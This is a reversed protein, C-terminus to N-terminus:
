VCFKISKTEWNICYGNFYFCSIDELTEDLQMGGLLRVTTRPKSLMPVRAHRM